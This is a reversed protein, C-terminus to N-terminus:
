WSAVFTGNQRILKVTMRLQHQVWCSSQSLVFVQMDSANATDSKNENLGEQQNMSRRNKWMEDGGTLRTVNLRTIWATAADTEQSHLQSRTNTSWLDKKGKTSTMATPFGGVWWRAAAQRKLQDANKATAQLKESASQLVRTEFREAAFRVVLLSQQKVLSSCKWTVDPLCVARVLQSRSAVDAQFTQTRLPAFLKAQRGRFHPWHSYSKSGSWVDCENTAPDGLKRCYFNRVVLDEWESVALWDVYTLSGHRSQSLITRNTDM